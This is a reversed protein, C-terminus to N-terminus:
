YRSEHPPPDTDSAFLVQHVNMPWIALPDKTGSETFPEEFLRHCEEVVFDHDSLTEDLAPRPTLGPYDELIDRVYLGQATVRALEDLVDDVSEELLEFLGMALTYDFFDEGYDLGSVVDGREFRLTIKEHPTRTHRRANEIRSASLDVGVIQLPFGDYGAAQWRGAVFEAVRQTQDGDGCGADLLRSTGPAAFRGWEVPPQFWAKRRKLYSWKTRDIPRELDRYYAQTDTVFRGDADAAYEERAQCHRENDGRRQARTESYDAIAAFPDAVLGWSELADFDAPTPIRM